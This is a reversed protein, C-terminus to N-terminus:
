RPDQLGHGMSRSTLAPSEIAYVRWAAAGRARDGQSPTDGAAPTALPVHAPQCARQFHRQTRHRVGTASSTVISRADGFLGTDPSPGCPSNAAEASWSRMESAGRRSCRLRVERDRHHQVRGVAVPRSELSGADGVRQTANARVDLLDDVAPEARLPLHGREFRQQLSAWSAMMLRGISVTCAASACRRTVCAPTLSTSM